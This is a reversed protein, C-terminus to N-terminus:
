KKQDSVHDSLQKVIETDDDLTMFPYLMELKETSNPVIM